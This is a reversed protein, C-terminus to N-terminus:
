VTGRVKGLAIKMEQVEELKTEWHQSLSGEGTLTPLNSIFHTPIVEKASGHVARCGTFRVLDGINKSTVGAGPMITLDTSAFHNLKKIMEKGEMATTAQGSTLVRDFGLRMLAELAQEPHTLLDFARHFTLDMGDTAEMLYKLGHVDVKGANTMCGIVVGEVGLQHCIKISTMMERIEDSGYVFGGVRCRILVHIPIKIAEQVREILGVTPTLGGTQLATCLEIRDAGGQEAIISSRYSHAAIELTPATKALKM